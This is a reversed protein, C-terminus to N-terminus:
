SDKFVPLLLEFRAGERRASHVSIQGGSRRVAAYVQALGLGTGLGAPKTSFFPEFLRRLTAADMGAGNDEVTLSVLRVGPRAGRGVPVARVDTRIVIRGRAGLADRANLVLNVLAQRLGAPDGLVAPLRPALKLELQGSRGVLTTLVEADGRVLANLDVKALGSAPRVAHDLLARVLESAQRGAERIEAVQRRAAADDKIRLGLLDAYGNILSLLNKLEHAVSGDVAPHRVRDTKRRVSRTM